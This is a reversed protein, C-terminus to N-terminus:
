WLQVFPEPRSFLPTTLARSLFHRSDVDGISCSTWIGYLKVHINGMIGDKLIAYITRSCWVPPRGFSWILCIKFSMEQVVSGFEFFFDSNNRM